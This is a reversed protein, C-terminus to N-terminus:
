VTAETFVKATHKKYIASSHICVHQVANKSFCPSCGSVAWRGCEKFKGPGPRLETPALGLAMMSDPQEPQESLSYLYLLGHGKTVQPM